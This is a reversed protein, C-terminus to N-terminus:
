KKQILDKLKKELFLINDFIVYFGINDEGIIECLKDRLGEGRKKILKYAKEYMNYGLAAECRHKHMKIKDRIKIMTQNEEFAKYVECPEEDEDDDNEELYHALEEGEDSSNDQNSDEDKIESEEEVIDERQDEKIESINLDKKKLGRTLTLEQVKIKKDIARITEKFEKDEEDEADIDEIISELYEDDIDDDIPHDYLSYDEEIKKKENFMLQMATSPRYQDRERRKAEAYAAQNQKYIQMLEREKKKQEELIKRQKNKLVRDKANNGEDEFSSSRPKTKPHTAISVSSKSNKSFSTEFAGEGIRHKKDSPANSSGKTGSSAHSDYDNTTDTIKNDKVRPGHKRPAKKNKKDVYERIKNYKQIKLKEIEDEIRKTKKKTASNKISKTKTEKVEKVEEKVEEEEEGTVYKLLDLQEAQEKLSDHNM